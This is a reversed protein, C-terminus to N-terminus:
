GALATHRRRHDMMTMEVLELFEEHDAELAREHQALLFKMAYSHRGHEFFAGLASQVLTMFEHDSPEANIVAMEWQNVALDNMGVLEFALARIRHAHELQPYTSFRLFAQELARRETNWSKPLKPYLGFYAQHFVVFCVDLALSYLTKRGRDEQERLFVPVLGLSGATRSVHGSLKIFEHKRRRPIRTAEVQNAAYEALYEAWSSQQREELSEQMVLEKCHRELEEDVVRCQAVQELLDLSKILAAPSTEAELLEHYRAVLAEYKFDNLEM